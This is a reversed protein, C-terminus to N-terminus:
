LGFLMRTPVNLVHAIRFLTYLDVKAHSGEILLIERVNLGSQEAFDELGLKQKERIAKINRGIAKRFSRWEDRPPYTYTHSMTKEKKESQHRSSVVHLIWCAPKNGAGPAPRTNAWERGFSIDHLFNACFIWRQRTHIAPINVTNNAGSPIILTFRWV